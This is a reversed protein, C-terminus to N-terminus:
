TVEIIEATSRRIAWETSGVRIHMAKKNCRLVELKAGLVFGFSELRNTYAHNKHIGIITGTEGVNMDSLLM